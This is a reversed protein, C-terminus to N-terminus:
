DPKDCKALVLKRDLVHLGDLNLGGRHSGHGSRRQKTRDGMWKDRWLRDAILDRGGIVRGFREGEVRALRWHWMGHLLRLYVGFETDRLDGEVGGM